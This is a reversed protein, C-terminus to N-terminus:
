CGHEEHHKLLRERGIEADRRALEVEARMRRYDIEPVSGIQLSLEAAAAAYNGHQM